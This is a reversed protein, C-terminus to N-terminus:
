PCTGWVPKPLVWATAGTAFNSPTSPILSVCWSSLNQNFSTADQFMGSMDTVSSVNWTNLPQNFPTGSFMNYMNTVSSVDWSGIPRNFSSCNYFMTEMSTVNGVNWNGIESNFNNAYTFMSYMNTVNSVDWLGINQNFYNAATFMGGMDTVSSVNWSSIDQNFSSTDFMGSMDTINSVDWENIRNVTTLASTVAFFLSMTTAGTLDLVDTVTSLDLNFCGFFAGAGNGTGDGVKLDGWQSVSILKAPSDFYISDFSSYPSLFASFGITVGNVTIVHDGPTAYTHVCTAYSNASTTGDGWDITGSYTGDPMYFLALSENPETTRWTSIFPVTPVYNCCEYAPTESWNGVKPKFRNLILSGPIVRGTGDYRVYAKNIRKNSM